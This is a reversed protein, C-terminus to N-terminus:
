GMTREIAAGLGWAGRAVWAAGTTAADAAAAGAAEEWAESLMWGKECCNPAKVWFACLKRVFRQSVTSPGAILLRKLMILPTKPPYSIGM